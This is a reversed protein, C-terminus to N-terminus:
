KTITAQRSSQTTRRAKISGPGCHEVEIFAFNFFVLLRLSVTMPESIIPLEKFSISTIGCWVTGGVLSRLMNSATNMQKHNYRVWTTGVAAELHRRKCHSREYQQIAAKVTSIIESSPVAFACVSPCGAGVLRQPTEGHAFEQEGQYVAHVFAM